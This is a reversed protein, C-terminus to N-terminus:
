NNVIAGWHVMGRAGHKFFHSSAVHAGGDDSHALVDPPVDAAGPVECKGKRGRFEHKEHVGVLKDRLRQEFPAQPVRLVSESTAVNKKIKRALKRIASLVSHVWGRHQCGARTVPSHSAAVLVKDSVVPKRVYMERSSEPLRRTAM